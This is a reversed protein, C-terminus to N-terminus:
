SLAVNQKRVMGHPVEIRWACHANNPYGGESSDVPSSFFGVVGMLVEPRTADNCAAYSDVLMAPCEVLFIIGFIHSFIKIMSHKTVAEIHHNITIAPRM